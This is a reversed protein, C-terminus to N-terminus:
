TQREWRLYYFSGQTPHVLADKQRDDRVTGPHAMLQVVREDHMRILQEDFAARSVRAGLARRLDAISVVGVFGRQDQNLRDYAERAARRFAETDMQVLSSVTRELSAVRLRMAELQSELEAVRTRLAKLTEELAEKVDNMAAVAIMGCRSASRLAASSLLPAETFNPYLMAYSTRM